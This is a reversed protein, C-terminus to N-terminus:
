FEQIERKRVAMTAFLGVWFMAFFLLLVGRINDATPEIGVRNLSIWLWLDSQWVAVAVFVVGFAPVRFGIVAPLLYAVFTILSIVGLSLYYLNSACGDPICRNSVQGLFAGSFLVLCFAIGVVVYQMRRNGASMAYIISMAFLFVVGLVLGEFLANEMIKLEQSGFVDDMLLYGAVFDPVILFVLTFYIVVIRLMVEQPLERIRDFQDLLQKSVTGNFM